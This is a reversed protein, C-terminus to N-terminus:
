SAALCTRNRGSNKARSLAEDARAILEEPLKADHPYAAVGCSITVSAEDPLGPFRYNMMIARMKEAIEYAVSKETFPFIVAIEEGGYRAAMDGSRLNGSILRAVEKLVGDGGPFGYTDNLNKFHDIDIMVISCGASLSKPAELEEKLRERFPRVASLGTLADIDVQEGGPDLPSAPSQKEIPLADYDQPKVKETDFDDDEEASRGDIGAQLPISEPYPNATWKRLMMSIVYGVIIVAVIASVIFILPNTKKVPKENEMPPAKMGYNLPSKPKDLTSMLTRLEPDGPNQALAQTCYEKVKATDGKQMYIQIILKHYLINNPEQDLLKQAESAAADFNKEKLHIIALQARAKGFSPNDRVIQQFISRAEATNNMFLYSNGLNFLVQPDGPALAQAKKFCTNAKDYNRQALYCCGLDNWGPLFSPEQQVVKEMKAIADALRGETYDRQAEKHLAATAQSQAHLPASGYFVLVLMLMVLSVIRKM